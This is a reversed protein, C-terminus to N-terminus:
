SDFKRTLPRDRCDEPISLYTVPRAIKLRARAAELNEAFLAPYDVAPLWAAAKGHRFAEM